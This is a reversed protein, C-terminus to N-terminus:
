HRETGTTRRKGKERRVKSYHEKIKQRDKSHNNRKKEKRGLNQTAIEKRKLERGKLNLLM